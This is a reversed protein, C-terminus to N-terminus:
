QPNEDGHFKRLREQCLPFIFCAPASSTPHSCLLSPFSVIPSSQALGQPKQPPVWGHECPLFSGPGQSALCPTVVLYPGLPPHTPQTLGDRAHCTPSPLGTAKCLPRLADGARAAPGFDEWSQLRSCGSRVDQHSCYRPHFRWCIPLFIFCKHAVRLLTAPRM